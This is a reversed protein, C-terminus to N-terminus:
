SASTLRASLKMCFVIEDARTRESTWGHPSKQRENIRNMFGETSLRLPELFLAANAYVIELHDSDAALRVSTKLFSYLASTVTSILKAQRLLADRNPARDVRQANDLQQYPGTAIMRDAFREGSKRAYEPDRSALEWEFDVLEGFVPMPYWRGVEIKEELMGLAAASLRAGLQEDSVRGSKRQSRPSAVVGVVVSGKASPELPNEGSVPNM